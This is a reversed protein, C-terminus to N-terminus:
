QPMSVRRRRRYKVTDSTRFLAAFRQVLTLAFIVSFCLVALGGVAVYLDIATGSCLVQWGGELHSCLEAYTEGLYRLGNHENM